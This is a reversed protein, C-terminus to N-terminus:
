QVFMAFDAIAGLSLVCGVGIVSGFKIVFAYLTNLAYHTGQQVIGYRDIGFEEDAESFNSVLLHGRFARIFGNCLENVINGCVWVVADCISGSVHYQDSM